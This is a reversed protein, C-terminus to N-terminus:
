SRDTRERNTTLRHRPRLPSGTSRRLELPSLRVSRHISRLRRAQGFVVVLETRPGLNANAPVVFTERENAEVVGIVDQQRPLLDPTTKRTRLRVYTGGELRLRFGVRRLSVGILVTESGPNRVEVTAGRRYCPEVRQLLADGPKDGARFGLPILVFVAILLVIVIVSFVVM